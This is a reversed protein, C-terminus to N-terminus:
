VFAWFSEYDLLKAKYTCKVEFLVLLCNFL